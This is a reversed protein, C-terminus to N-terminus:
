VISSNVIQLIGEVKTIEYCKTVNVGNQDLVVCSKITNNTEGVETISGTVECVLKHGNILSGLTITITDDTLPNGNYERKVSASSITLARRTVCLGCGEGAAEIALHYNDTVDEGYENRIVYPLNLEQIEDATLIGPETQSGSLAFELTYGEPIYKIWYDNPQYSLPTGDYTKQVDYLVIVVQTKTVEIKGPLYTINFLETVDNGKRDFLKFSTIISESVGIETQSGTVVVEFTYGYKDVLLQIATNYDLKIKNVAYLPTGDYAKSVTIPTIELDRPLNEDEVIEDDGGGGSGGGGGLNGGAGAGTVEVPIWGIGDLYIETWAHGSDSTIETWENQITTGVYGITYRAPIGLARFIMTAASAYHRCVGENYEDGLFAVVINAEKDLNRDYAMNYTACNQVYKQVKSIIQPDSKEWDQQAILNQIFADTEADIKLYQSYVFERYLLEVESLEGLNVSLNSFDGTYTYYYVSYSGDHTGSFKVDNVQIVHNSEKMDVFYPLLYDSTFSNIELYQLQASDSLKLALAVLYNFGYNEIIYQEYANAEEWKQGSYDGFSKLRM